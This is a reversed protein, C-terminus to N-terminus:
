RMVGLERENEANLEDYLEKAGVLEAEAIALQELLGARGAANAFDGTWCDMGPMCCVAEDFRPPEWFGPEDSGPGSGSGGAAGAGAATYAEFQVALHRMGDQMAMMAARQYKEEMNLDMVVAAVGGVIGDRVKNMLASVQNAELLVLAPLTTLAEFDPGETNEFQFKVMDLVQIIMQENTFDLTALDERMIEGARFAFEPLMEFFDPIVQGDPQIDNIVYDLAGKLARIMITKVDQPLEPINHTAMVLM